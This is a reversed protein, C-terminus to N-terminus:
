RATMAIWLKRLPTLSLRQNLVSAAGARAIENLTALTIRAVILHVRQRRRQEPSLGKVPYRYLQTVNATPESM